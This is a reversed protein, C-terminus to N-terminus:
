RYSTVRTSRRKSRTVLARSTTNFATALNQGATLVGERLSSNDPDTSLSSISSFLASMQTGIDETSTTFTPQVQQLASLQANAGGQAQTEQQIQAQVLEDRQSQYGQLVVGNGVSYNGENTPAVEQFVPVKRTFGPTNANAINNNTGQLAGTDAMLAQVATSLTTSLSSM